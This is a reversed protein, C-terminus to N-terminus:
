EEPAHEYFRKAVVDTFLTVTGAYTQRDGLDPVGEENSKKPFQVKIDNETYVVKAKKTALDTEVVRVTAVITGRFLGVASDSRTQFQEIEVYILRSVQLRPAVETITMSESEPHERQYRVISAPKWPFSADKFEKHPKSKGKGDRPDALRQHIGTAIDLQISEWDTRIGRDAWVMVGVTQGTMGTYVPKIPPPPLAAAFVGLINCGTIFLSSPLLILSSILILRLFRRNSQCTKTEDKMM